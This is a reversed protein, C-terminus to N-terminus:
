RRRKPEWKDYQEASLIAKMKEDFTALINKANAKRAGDVLEPAKSNALQQHLRENMIAIFKISQEQNLGLEQIEKEWRAMLFQPIPGASSSASIITTPAPSGIMGSASSMQLTLTYGRVTASELILGDNKITFVESGSDSGTLSFYQSHHRNWDVYVSTGDVKYFANELVPVREGPGFIVDLDPPVPRNPYYFSSIAYGSLGAFVSGDKKSRFIHGGGSEQGLVKYVSVGDSGFIYICGSFICAEGRYPVSAWNNKYELGIRLGKTETPSSPAAAVSSASSTAASQKTISVVSEYPLNIEGRATNLILNGSPFSGKLKSNDALALFGDNFSIIENLAVEAKGYSANFEIINTPMAGVLVSGDKVGVNYNGEAFVKEPLAFSVLVLAFFMTKLIPLAHFVIGMRSKTPKM